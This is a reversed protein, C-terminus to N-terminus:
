EATTKTVETQTVNNSEAADDKTGMNECGSILALALLLLVTNSPTKM